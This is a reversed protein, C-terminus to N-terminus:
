EKSLQHTEEICGDHHEIVLPLPALIPRRAVGSATPHMLQMLGRANASSRARPDYASEQRAIAQLIHTKGLGVNSHIILPNFTSASIDEAITRAAAYVM